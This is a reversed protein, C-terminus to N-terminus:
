KFLEIIRGPLIIVKPDTNRLIEETQASEGFGPKSNVEDDVVFTLLTETRSVTVLGQCVDFPNSVGGFKFFVVRGDVGVTARGNVHRQLKSKPDSGYAALQASAARSSAKM